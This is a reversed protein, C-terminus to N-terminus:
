RFTIGGLQTRIWARVEAPDEPLEDYFIRFTRDAGTSVIRRGDPSVVFSYVGGEHGSLARSAGTAIDWIRLTNDMSMTVLRKGDATFRPQGAVQQHGRLTHLLSGTKVDWIRIAPDNHTTNALTTGDPSFALANTTFSLQLVVSQSTKLDYIKIRHDEVACALRDGQASFAVLAIEETNKELIRSDSGDMKSIRLVGDTGGSAVLQGDSSFAVTTAIGQHQCLVREQKGQQVDFLVVSGDVGAVVVRTGDPSFAMRMAPVDMEIRHVLTGKNNWIWLGDEGPADEILKNTNRLRRRGKTIAVLSGQPSAVMQFVSLEVNTKVDIHEGADLDWIQLLGATDLVFVHRGDKSAEVGLIGVGRTLVRGSRKADFAIPLLRVDGNVCGLALMDGRHSIEMFGVQDPCGYVVYSDNQDLNHIRVFREGEPFVVVRGDESFLFSGGRPVKTDFTGGLERTATNWWKAKTGEQGVVLRNGDPSFRFGTHLKKPTDLITEVRKEVDWLVIKYDQRGQLLVHRKHVALTEIDAVNGKWTSLVQEEGHEMTATWLTGDRDVGAVRDDVESMSVIASNGKHAYKVPSEGSKLRIWPMELWHTTGAIGGSKTWNINMAPKPVTFMDVTKGTDADWIRIDHDLSSTAFRRGDEHIKLAWTEDKHGQLIRSTGTKLDWIRVTGDDSTTALADDNPFFRVTCITKTHGRLVRAIGRSQAESAILRIEAPRDFSDSLSNLWDLTQNPDRDLATRAQLITLEDARRTIEGQAVIAKKEAVEAALQKEEARRRQLTNERFLYGGVVVLVVFAFGAVSLTLWYKQVFRKLLDLVSYEHARVIQGTQFRRLDEAFEKASPYREGKTQAMAKQVIALLDQAVGPVLKTLPTPPETLVAMLRHLSSMEHYPPVGGLLHYLIAGLAYVDAREDVPAGEAQEPSMYGPTGMVAGMMTLGDGAPTNSESAVDESEAVGLKKAIGWDIVVTEGFSGVIVNAPKLDRHIIGESHAYAVAEAVALVHPLLALRGALTKKEAILGELTRGSVLRMSYFAEGTPWRGAEYIPVINPHQLRATLLAERVFRDESGSGEDLLEKLAVHRGLREDYAAWIRGIGGKGFERGIRYQDRTVIPLRAGDLPAADGKPGIGHLVDQQVTEATGLTNDDDLRQSRDSDSM